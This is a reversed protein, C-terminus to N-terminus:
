PRYKNAKTHSTFSWVLAGVWGLFSWGLLLNVLFIPVLNLHGSVPRHHLPHLLHRSLHRSFYGPNVLELRRANRVGSVEEPAMPRASPAAQAAPTGRRTSKIRTFGGSPKHCSPRGPPGAPGGTQRGPRFLAASAKRPGPRWGIKPRDDSPSPSSSREPKGFHGGASLPRTTSPSPLGKPSARPWAWLSSTISDRNIPSSTYKRGDDRLSLRSRPRLARLFIVVV